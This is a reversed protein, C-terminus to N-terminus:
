VPTQPKLKTKEGQKETHTHKNIHADSYTIHTIRQQTQMRPKNTHERKWQWQLKYSNNMPIISCSLHALSLPWIHTYLRPSISLLAHLMRPLFAYVFMCLHKCVMCVCVDTYVPSVISANMFQGAFTEM